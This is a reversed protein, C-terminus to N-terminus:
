SKTHVLSQLVELATANYEEELVDLGEDSQLKLASLAPAESDLIESSIARFLFSSNVHLLSADTSNKLQIGCAQVYLCSDLSTEVQEENSELGDSLQGSGIRKLLSVNREMDFRLNWDNPGLRAETGVDVSGDSRIRHVIASRSKPVDLEAGGTGEKREKRRGFLHM